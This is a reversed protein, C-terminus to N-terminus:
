SHTGVEQNRKPLPFLLGSWFQEFCHYNEGKRKGKPCFPLVREPLIGGNRGFVSYLVLLSVPTSPRLVLLSGPAPLLLVLLSVPTYGPYRSTYGLPQCTYGRPYLGPTVPTGVTTYAPHSLYVWPPIGVPTHSPVWPPIGVPTYVRSHVPYVM